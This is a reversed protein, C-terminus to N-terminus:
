IVFLLCKVQIRQRILLQTVMHFIIENMSYSLIKLLMLHSNLLSHSILKSLLLLQIYVNNLQPEKSYCIFRNIKKGFLGNTWLEIESNTDYSKDIIFYRVPCRSKESIVILSTIPSDKLAPDV